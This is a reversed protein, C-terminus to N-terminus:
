GCHRAENKHLKDLTKHHTQIIDRKISYDVMSVSSFFLLRLGRAADFAGLDGGAAVRGLICGGGVVLVVEVFFGFAGGAEHVVVTAPLDGAGRVAVLAFEWEGDFLKEMLCFYLPEMAIVAYANRSSGM